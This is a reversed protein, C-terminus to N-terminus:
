LEVFNTVIGRTAGDFGASVYVECVYTHEGYLLSDLFVDAVGRSISGDTNHIDIVGVDANGIVHPNASVKMRYLHIKGDEYLYVDVEVTITIIDVTVGLMKAQFTHSEEYIQVSYENLTSRQNLISMMNDPADETLYIYEKVVEQTDPLEDEQMFKVIQEETLETETFIGGSNEGAYVTKENVYGSVLLMLLMCFIINWTKKM